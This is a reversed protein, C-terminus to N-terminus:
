DEKKKTVVVACTGLTAVLALGMMGISGKCGKKAPAPETVPAETTPAETPADTAPAETTVEETTPAETVPAETTVEETTPAETTVEETTVEETEVEASPVEGLVVVAPLWWTKTTGLTLKESNTLTRGIHMANSTISTDRDNFDTEGMYQGMALTFFFTNPFNTVNSNGLYNMLKVTDAKNYRYEHVYTAGGGERAARTVYLKDIDKIPAGDIIVDSGNWDTGTFNGTTNSSYVTKETAAKNGNVQPDFGVTIDSHTIGIKPFINASMNHRVDDFYFGPDSIAIYVYEDDYSFYVDVYESHAVTFENTETPYYTFSDPNLSTDWKKTVNVGNADRYSYSYEGDKIVGDQVPATTTPKGVYHIDKEGLIGSDLLEELSVSDEGDNAVGMAPISILFSAVLMLSIAVLIKKM